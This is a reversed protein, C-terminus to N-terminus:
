GDRDAPSRSLGRGPAPGRAASGRRALPHPCSITLRAVGRRRARLAGPTTSLRRRVVARCRRVTGRHRGPPRRVLRASTRHRIGVGSRPSGARARRPGFEDGLPVGRTRVYNALAERIPRLSDIDNESCRGYLVTAGSQFVEFAFRALVSTKGVGPEGGVILIHPRRTSTTTTWLEHASSLISGRGVFPPRRALAPPLPVLPESVEAWDVRFLTSPADFGKLLVEGVSEIRYHSRPAALQSTLGCCLIEGGSPWRPSGPARTPRRGYVDGDEVMVEGTALGVRLGIPETAELNRQALSRQVAVSCSIAESPSVFVAFSGDGTSKVLTGHAREVERAVIEDHERRLGDGQHDGLRIQQETSSVADTFLLTLLGTDLPRVASDYAAVTDYCESDLTAACRGAGPFPRHSRRCRHGIQGIEAIGRTNETAM